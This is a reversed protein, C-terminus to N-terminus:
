QLLHILCGAAGFAALENANYAAGLNAESLARNIQGITAVGLQITGAATLSAADNGNAVKISEPTVGWIVQGAASVLAGTSLFPVGPKIYGDSDVERTTLVAVNVALQAFHDVPGVFVRAYVQGSTTKPNVVRIPM